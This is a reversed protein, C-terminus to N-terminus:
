QLEIQGIQLHTDVHGFRDVLDANQFPAGVITQRTGTGGFDAIALASGFGAFAQPMSATIRQFPTGHVGDFIFVEGANLLGNVDQEPAGIAIDSRRDGSVDDSLIISAGFRAFQQPDPSRLKRLLAGSKGDFIFVAGQLNTLLPAGVAFDPIADGNLDKGGAVAFGFSPQREIVPSPITFILTGTAGSFVFACSRGPAGILADTVGDHDIDGANAVAAGFRSGGEQSPPNLSRILSGNSGSFVYAIGSNALGGQTDKDPAGVLLDPVGDSNVDGLGAVAFGLKAQEEPTPDDLTLLVGGTAGSFVFARGASNLEEEDAEAVSVHHPVGVLIDPTGDRDIDGAAAVSSGLEGGFTQGQVMQFEPDNLVNIVALTRGSVLYTKGVNLPPGFGVIINRFDGDQFPAGVALDAAGDGDIDGIVTMSLGFLTTSHEPRPDLLIAASNNVTMGKGPEFPAVRSGSKFLFASFSNVPKSGGVTNRFPPQASTVIFNSGTILRFLVGSGEATDQDRYGEDSEPPCAHVALSLWLWLLAFAISARVFARRGRNRSQSTNLAEARGILLRKM